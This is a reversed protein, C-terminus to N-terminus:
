DNRRRSEPDPVRALIVEALKGSTSDFRVALRLQRSYNYEPGSELLKRDFLADGLLQRVEKRSMGVALKVAATRGVGRPHLTLTPANTSRLVIAVVEDTGLVEIGHQEFVLRRLNGTMLTERAPGLRKLVDDIPEALTVRNGGSLEISLAPRLLTRPRRLLANKKQPEVGSEKCLRVYRDYALSWWASLADSKSLYRELMQVAAKRDAPQGSAARLVAQHYQIATGLREEEVHGLQRALAVAEDLRKLGRARSTRTGEALLAAAFNVLVVARTEPDVTRDETLDSVAEDFLATAEAVDPTGSKHFLHALALNAKALALNPRIRLAQRFSGVAEDWLRTGGRVVPRQSELRLYFGGCLVQGVGFDRLNGADLGDCYHMLYAYGRNVWGEYSAPFEGVVRDFCEAAQAYQEASLFEVGSTFASIARWYRKDRAMEEHRKVWAPHTSTLAAERSEHRRAFQQRQREDWNTRHIALAKKLSFNARLMLEAGFADAEAEQQRGVTYRHFEVGPRRQFSHRHHIHGLEHGLILAMVDPSGRIVRRSFGLHMRVRARPRGAKDTDRWDAWAAANEEDDKVFTLVPPWQFGKVPQMEAVLRGFVEHALKEDAAIEEPTYKSRDQRAVGLACFGLLAALCLSAHILKM